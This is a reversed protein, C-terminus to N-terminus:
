LKIFDMPCSRTRKPDSEGVVLGNKGSASLIVDKGIPSSCFCSMKYSLALFNSFGQFKMQETEPERRLEHPFLPNEKIGKRFYPRRLLQERLEQWENSVIAKQKKLEPIQEKADRLREERKRIMEDTYPIFVM